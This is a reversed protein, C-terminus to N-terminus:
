KPLAYTKGETKRDTNNRGNRIIAYRSCPVGMEDKTVVVADAAVNSDDYELTSNTLGNRGSVEELIVFLEKESSCAVLRNCIGLNQLVV